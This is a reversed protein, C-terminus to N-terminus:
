AVSEVDTADMEVPTPHGLLELLVRVRHGRAAPRELIGVLGEFPGRAVRVREGPRFEPAWRVIEGEGCRDRLLRMAEPPVPIPMDDTGLIRRVGPAWKVAHWSEPELTMHVFVYSPFLPEVVVVRRPGRRRLAEVKPLFIPLGARTRIWCLVREERRPKTQVAYWAPELGSAAAPHRAAADIM